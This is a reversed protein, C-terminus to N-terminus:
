AGGCDSGRATSADSARAVVLADGGASGEALGSGTWSAMYAAAAGAGVAGDESGVVEGVGAGEPEASAVPLVWVPLLWDSLLGLVRGEVRGEAPGEPLRVTM